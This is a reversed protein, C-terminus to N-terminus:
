WNVRAPGMDWFNGTTMVVYRGVHGDLFSINVTSGPHPVQYLDQLKYIWWAADATMPQKSAKVIAKGSGNYVRWAENRIPLLEVRWDDTEGWVFTTLKKRTLGNSYSTAKSSGGFAAFHQNYNEHYYITDSPCHWVQSGMKIYDDLQDLLVSGTAMATPNDFLLPLTQGYGPGHSQYDAAYSLVATVHSRTNNACAITQASKRASALAPLLISILLSVISIVVLLEILTFGKSDRRNKNMGIWAMHKFM